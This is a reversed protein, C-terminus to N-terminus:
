FLTLRVVPRLITQTHGAFSYYNASQSRRLVPNSVGGSSARSDSVKRRLPKDYSIFFSNQVNDYDHIGEGRSFTFDGNSAGDALHTEM